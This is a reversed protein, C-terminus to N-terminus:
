MLDALEASHLEIFNKLKAQPRDLDVRPHPTPPTALKPVKTRLYQRTMASYPADDQM